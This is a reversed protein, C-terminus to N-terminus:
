YSKKIKKGEAMSSSVPETSSFTAKPVTTKRLPIDPDTKTSCFDKIMSKSLAKNYVMESNQTSDDSKWSLEFSTDNLKSPCSFRLIADNYNPATISIVKEIRGPYTRRKYKTEPINEDDLFEKITAQTKFFSNSENPYTYLNITDGVKVEQESIVRKVLRVLDAETLRVIKKMNFEKIIFVGLLSM